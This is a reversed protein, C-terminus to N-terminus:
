RPVDCDGPSKKPIPLGGGQPNPGDLLDAEVLDRSAIARMGQDAIEVTSCARDLPSAGALAGSCAGELLGDSVAGMEVPPASIVGSM